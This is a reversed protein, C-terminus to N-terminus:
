IRGAATPSHQSSSRQSSDLQSSKLQLSDQQYQQARDHLQRAGSRLSAVTRIHPSADNHPSSPSAPLSGLHRTGHVSSDVPQDFDDLAEALMRLLEQDEAMNLSHQSHINFPSAHHPQQAISQRVSGLSGLHTEPKACAVMDPPVPYGRPQGNGSSASRRVRHFSHAPCHCFYM